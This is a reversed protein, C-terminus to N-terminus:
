QSPAAKRRRWKISMKALWLDRDMNGDTKVGDPICALPCGTIRLGCVIEPRGAEAGFLKSVASLNTRFVAEVDAEPADSGATLIEPIGIGTRFDIELDVDEMFAKGIDISYPNDMGLLMSELKGAIYKLCDEALQSDTRLAVTFGCEVMSALDTIDAEAYVSAEVICGTVKEITGDVTYKVLSKMFEALSERDTIYGVDDFAKQVSEWAIDKLDGASIAAQIRSGNSTGETGKGFVWETSGDFERHWTNADDKDDRLTPTKDVVAGDPDKLTLAEGSKTRKGSSNVMTFSPELELFEGPGISGSLPMIKTKWDSSAILEYGGLDITSDSNNLLEVWEGTRDDGSPNSEFENIILGFKMPASYKLSFGADIKAKFGVLPIPINSIAEKLGPVDSLKLGLEHYQVMEPIALSVGIKGARGDATLLHKGSKMFPDIKIKVKWPERGSEKDGPDSITGFGTIRLDEGVTKGASKLTVGATIRRDGDRTGIEFTFLTKTKGALSAADATIKLDYGLVSMEISQNKLGIKVGISGYIQAFFQELNSKAWGAITELPGMLEEHLKEIYEQVYRAAESVREGVAAMIKEVIRLTEKLPELIPELFPVAAAWIDDLVTCSPRYSIGALAWCSAAAVEFSLDVPFEGSVLCSGGDTRASLAGVGKVSYRVTDQLSVEFVTSYAAVASERFGVTHTCKKWCIKPDSASPSTEVSAELKERSIGGGERVVDFTGTGALKLEGGMANADCLGCMEACMAEMKERVGRTIGSAELGFACAESIGWGLIGSNGQPMREPDEFVELDAFVAARYGSLATEYGEGSMFREVAQEPLSESLAARVRGAFEEELVYSDREEIVKDCVAGYLPDSFETGKLALTISRQFDEGCGDMMPGISEAVADALRIGDYPDATIRYAGLGSDGAVKMAASVLVSRIYDRLWGSGKMGKGAFTKIWDSGFIDAAPCEIEFTRGDAAVEITGSGPFRYDSEEYGNLEMVAKLYPTADFPDRGSVFSDLLICANRIVNLKSQLVSSIGRGCFYDYWRIAIDDAMGMLAQAYAAQLDVTVCGGESLLMEAPDASTESAMPGCRFCALSLLDICIEYADLVDKKTLIGDTGYIGYASTSGYGNMIRMQALNSLQYKLMQELTVSGEAAMREFLSGQEAALPLTCSGDSSIRLVSDASGTGTSIRVDVTGSAKLYAPLYGGDPIGQSAVRLPQASLELDSGKLEARVGNDVMPFQYKLWEDARREFEAERDEATGGSGSSIGRIIEALGRDVFATMSDLAADVAEADKEGSRAEESAREYGAAMAGCAASITLILVAIVAFPMAGKRDNM